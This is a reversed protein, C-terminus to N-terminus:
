EEDPLFGLDLESLEPDDPDVRVLVAQGRLRESPDYAFSESEVVRVRGTKPDQWQGHVVFGGAEDRRVTVFKAPVTTETASPASAASVRLGAVLLGAGVAAFPLGVGGLVATLLWRESWSDLRAEEPAGPPYLVTVRDGRRHSPPSSATKGSVRVSRGDRDSFEFVPRYLTSGSSDSRDAELDVVTGQTRVAEAAFAVASRYAFGAGALLGVGILGFIGALLLLVLKARSM